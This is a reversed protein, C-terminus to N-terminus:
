GPKGARWVPCPADPQNRRYHYAARKLLNEDTQDPAIALEKSLWVHAQAPSCGVTAALQKTLREERESAFGQLVECLILDGLLIEDRGLTDRLRVVQPTAIGNFFDIWVTSDVVIVPRRPLQSLDSPALHKRSVFAATRYGLSRAWRALNPIEPDPHPVGNERVGHSRPHLGTLMSLHSPDTTPMPSM